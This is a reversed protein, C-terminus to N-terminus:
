ELFTIGGEDGTLALDAAILAVRAGENGMQELMALGDSESGATRVEYDAGFRRTLATAIRERAAADADVLFLVPSARPERGSESAPSLGNGGTDVVLHYGWRAPELTYQPGAALFRRPKVSTQRPYGQHQCDVGLRM